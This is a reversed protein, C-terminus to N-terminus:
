EARYLFFIETLNADAYMSVTYFMNLYYGVM